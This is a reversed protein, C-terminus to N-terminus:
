EILTHIGLMYDKELMANFKGDNCSISYLKKPNMPEFYEIQFRNILLFINVVDGDYDAGLSTLINNSISMTTDEIDNKIHTVRVSLISGINITPNRNILIRMGYPMDSIINNIVRYIQRDFVTTARNWKMNAEDYSLRFAKVLYRIIHLKLLELACLYPLHVEDMETKPPLPIVVCRSSFNLRNGLLSNRIYGTKGSITGIVHDYVQQNLMQIKYILKEKSPDVTGEPVPPFSRMVSACKAIQTFLTNVKDFILNGAVMIAPRLRSSFIPVNSTIIEDRHKELFLYVSEDEGKKLTRLTSLVRDLNNLFVTIGKGVLDPFIEKTDEAYLATNDIVHGDIDVQYNPELYRKLKPKGIYKQLMPMLTPNIFNANVPIWGLTSMNAPLSKVPNGCNDCILGEHPAGRTEGCVCSFESEGYMRGFIEESYIGQRDFSNDKSSLGEYSYILNNPNFVKKLSIIKARM